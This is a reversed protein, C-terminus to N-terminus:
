CAGNCYMNEPHYHFICSPYYDGVNETGVELILKGNKIDYVEILDCDEHWYLSGGRVNVHEVRVEIDPLTTRCPDKVTKVEECYSRYGDSPDEIAMYHKGDLTFKVYNCEDPEGFWTDKKPVKGLEVGQLVHRGELSKLTIKEEVRDRCEQEGDDQLSDALTEIVKGLDKLALHMDFYENEMSTWIANYYRNLPFDEKSAIKNLEADNEANFKYLIKAAAKLQNIEEDTLDFKNM